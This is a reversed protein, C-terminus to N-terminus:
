DRYTHATNRNKKVRSQNPSETTRGGTQGSNSGYTVSPDAPEWSFYNHDHDLGTDPNITGFIYNVILKNM